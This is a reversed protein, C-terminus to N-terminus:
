RALETQVGSRSRRQRALSDLEAKLNDDIHGLRAMTARTQAPTRSLRMPCGLAPFADGDLAPVTKFLHRALTQPHSLVESVSLVPASPVGVVELMGLAESRSKGAVDIPCESPMLVFGDEATAVRFPAPRDLQNWVMSTAWVTADQMALDFILGNGTRRAHRVGAILAVLGFQGGLQDSISIGAKTPMGDVRTVDLAGSMAQIVTDLAPRGPYVTDFGFGNVSCYVLHPQRRLVETAGLGLRELAGPKLNEIVADATSLLDFLVDRDAEDKLNLVLGRKDTNSLMFVYSAGDDRLPANHRNTDGTPPEIKIVDAGLAGLQRGALPAVTNMGIEVIRLGSLPGAGTGTQAMPPSKRAGKSAVCSRFVNGPVHGGVAADMRCMTRHVVNAESNLEGLSLIPSAPLGAGNALEVIEGSPLSGVWGQIQIDIEDVHALRATTTSFRTDSALGPRDMVSCLKEWMADTPACLLVWRGDQALYSNWPTMTPHRNGNRTAPLGALELPVFTLLANVGVDFLAIDVKQGKKSMDREFLASVIAAAGYVGAEMSIFPAGTIAPPGQRDGTTAAVGAWGQVLEDPLPRGALPGEGGFATFNCTIQDERLNFLQPDTDKSLLLIDAREILEASQADSLADVSLCRKGTRMIRPNRRKRFTSDAQRVDIQAVDAGLMALLSGCAAVATRSGIEVVQIDRLFDCQHM